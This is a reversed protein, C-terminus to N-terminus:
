LEFFVLLQIGLYKKCAKKLTLVYLVYIEDFGHAFEFLNKVMESVMCECLNSALCILYV